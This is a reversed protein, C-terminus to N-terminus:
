KFSVGLYVCDNVVELPENKLVIVPCRRVKGRSFIVIKTKNRNITLNWKDCYNAVAHIARQLEEPLEAMVITDDAYLLVFLRLYVEADDIYVNNVNENSIVSM